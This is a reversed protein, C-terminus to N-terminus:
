GPPPPSGGQPPGGAGQPPGGAGQPPGGGPPRGPPPGGQAGGPSPGGGAGGNGQEGASGRMLERHLHPRSVLVRCRQEIASEKIKECYRYSSPDVERTVTLWIFDRIQADQVKEMVIKEGRGPDTRFVEPAYQAWCEDAAAGASLGECDEPGSWGGSCGVAVVAAVVALGTSVSSTSLTLSGLRM